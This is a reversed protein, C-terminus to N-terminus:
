RECLAVHARWLLLLGAPSICLAKASLLQVIVKRYLLAQLHVPPSQAFATLPYKGAV